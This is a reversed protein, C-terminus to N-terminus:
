GNADVYALHFALDADQGLTPLDDLPTFEPRGSLSPSNM